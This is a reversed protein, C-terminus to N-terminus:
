HACHLSRSFCFWAYWISLAGCCTLAPGAPSPRRAFFFSGGFGRLSMPELCRSSFVPLSGTGRAAVQPKCGFVGFIDVIPVVFFFAHGRSAVRSLITLPAPPREM